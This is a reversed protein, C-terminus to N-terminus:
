QNNPNPYWVLIIFSLLFLYKFIVWDNQISIFTLIALISLIIKRKM